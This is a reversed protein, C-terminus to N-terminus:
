FPRQNLHGASVKRMSERCIGYAIFSSGIDSDACLADLTLMCVVERSVGWGMCFPTLLKFNYLTDRTLTQLTLRCCNLIEHGFASYKYFVRCFIATVLGFAGQILWGEPGVTDVIRPSVERYRRRFFSHTLTEIKKSTVYTM